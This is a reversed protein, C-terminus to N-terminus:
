DHKFVPWGQIGQAAELGGCPQAAEVLGGFRQVQGLRGDALLNAAQFGVQLLRQEVATAAAHAQGVGPM